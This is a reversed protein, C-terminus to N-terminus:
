FNLYFNEGLVDDFVKESLKVKLTEKGTFIEFNEDNEGACM